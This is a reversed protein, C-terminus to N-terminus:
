RESDYKLVTKKWRNDSISWNLVECVGNENNAAIDIKEVEQAPISDNDFTYSWVRNDYFDFNDWIYRGDKLKLALYPQAGFIGKQTYTLLRKRDGYDKLECELGSEVAELNLYKRYANIANAYEFRVNPFNTSAKKIFARVRNVDFEMDKYDHDTFALIAKGEKEALAFAEDVDQQTIERLRAYM